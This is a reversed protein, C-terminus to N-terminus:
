PTENKVEEFGFREKYFRIAESKFKLYEPLDQNKPEACLFILYEDKILTSINQNLQHNYEGILSSVQDRNENLYRKSTFKIIGILPIGYNACISKDVKSGDLKSSDSLNTDIQIDCKSILKFESDGQLILEELEITKPTALLDDTKEKIGQSPIFTEPLKM